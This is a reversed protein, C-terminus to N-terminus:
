EYHEVECNVDTEYRNIGRVVNEAKNKIRRDEFGYINNASDPVVPGLKSVRGDNWNFVIRYPM